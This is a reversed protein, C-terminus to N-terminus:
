NLSFLIKESRYLRVIYRLILTVFIINSVLMIVFHVLTVNGTFIENLLMTQGIMPIAAIFSSMEVGVIGLFMPIIPVMSLPTLASQAEKFTKSYSAIAITAGSILLSFTILVVVCLFLTYANMVVVVDDYITFMNQVIGLSILALVVCIIATIICAVFNAFYKGTILQKSKIPFTLLTELTGKEKEGAIADTASTISTTAISIITFTFAMLVIQNVFFNVPEIQELEFSILNFVLSPDIGENILYQEGLHQSVAELYNTLFFAAMHSDQNNPNHYIYYVEDRLVVYAKIEGAKYAEELEDEEMHKIVINDPMEEFITIDYTVGVYYTADEDPNLMLEFGYSIIFIVLPILLPMVLMMTLSKKDRLMSRLDKILTIITKNKM